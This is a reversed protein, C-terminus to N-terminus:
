EPWFVQGRLSRFTIKDIEWHGLEKGEIEPCRGNGILDVIFADDLETVKADSSAVRFACDYIYRGTADKTPIQGRIFESRARVVAKIYKGPFKRVPEAAVFQYGCTVTVTVFLALRRRLARTGM